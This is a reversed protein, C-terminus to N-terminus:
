KATFAPRGAADLIVNGNMQMPQEKSHRSPAIAGEGARSRNRSIARGCRSSRDWDLCRSEFAVAEAYSARDLHEGRESSKGSFRYSPSDARREFCIEM